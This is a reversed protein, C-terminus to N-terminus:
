RGNGFVVLYFGVLRFPVADIIGGVIKDSDFFPVVVRFLCCCSGMVSLHFQRLQASWYTFFMLVRFFLNDPKVMVFDSHDDFM